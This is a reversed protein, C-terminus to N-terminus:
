LQLSNGSGAEMLKLGAAGTTAGLGEPCLQPMGPTDAALNILLRSLTERPFSQLLQM